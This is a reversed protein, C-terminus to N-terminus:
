FKPPASGSGFPTRAKHQLQILDPIERAIADGRPSRYSNSREGSRKPAAGVDSSSKGRFMLSTMSQRLRGHLLFVSPELDSPAGSFGNRALRRWVEPSLSTQGASACPEAVRIQELPEGAVIFEWRDRDGLRYATLKGAGLACHMSLHVDVGDEKVHHVSGPGQLALACNAAAAVVGNLAVDGDSAALWTILMADGAFKLVDGGHKVIIDVARTYIANIHRKLAASPETFTKQMFKRSMARFSSESGGLDTLEAHVGAPSFKAFANLLDNRSTADLERRRPSSGPRPCFLSRKAEPAEDGDGDDGLAPQDVEFTVVSKGALRPEAGALPKESPRGLVPAWARGM